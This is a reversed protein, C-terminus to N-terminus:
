SPLPLLFHPCSCLHKDICIELPMISSLQAYLAATFVAVVLPPFYVSLNHILLETPPPFHLSRSIHLLFLMCITNSDKTAGLQQEVSMKISGPLFAVLFTTFWHYSFPLQLSPSSIFLHSMDSSLLAPPRFQSPLLISLQSNTFTLRYGSLQHVTMYRSHSSRLASILASNFTLPVFSTANFWVM